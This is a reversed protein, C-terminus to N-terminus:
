LTQADYVPSIWADCRVGSNVPFVPSRAQQRPAQQWPFLPAPKIQASFECTYAGLPYNQRDLLLLNYGAASTSAGFRSLFAYRELYTYRSWLDPRILLRVQSQSANAQPYTFWNLVMKEGFQKNAWWLSPLTLSRQSPTQATVEPVTLPMELLEVVKLPAEEIAIPVQAFVSPSTMGILLSCFGTSFVVRLRSKQPARYFVKQSRLSDTSVM